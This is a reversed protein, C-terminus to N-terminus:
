MSDNSSSSFHSKRRGNSNSNSVIISRSPFIKRSSDSNRDTSSCSTDTMNTLEHGQSYYQGFNEQSITREAKTETLGDRKANTTTRRDTNSSMCSCTM